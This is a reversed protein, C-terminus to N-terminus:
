ETKEKRKVEMHQIIGGGRHVLTEGEATHNKKHNKLAQLDRVMKDRSGSKRTIMLNDLSFM